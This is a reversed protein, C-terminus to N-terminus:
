PRSASRARADRAGGHRHDRTASRETGGGFTLIPAHGRYSGSAAAACSPAPSGDRIAGPPASSKSAAAQLGDRLVRQRLGEGGVRRRLQADLAHPVVGAELQRRAASGPRGERAGPEGAGLGPRDRAHGGPARGRAGVCRHGGVLRQVMGVTMLSVREHNLQTVILWWGGDQPGILHDAPVARGRLLDLEHPLRGDDHDAHVRYGASGTPVMFMSLGDHKKKVDTNTRAALWIYDAYEAQSTYIKNGNIVWTDGDRV